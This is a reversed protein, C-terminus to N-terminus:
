PTSGFELVVSCQQLVIRTLSFYAGSDFTFVEDDSQFFTELMGTLDSGSIGEAEDLWPTTWSEGAPLHKFVARVEAM